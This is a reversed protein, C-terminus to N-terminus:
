SEERGDRASRAVYGDIPSRWLVEVINALQGYHVSKAEGITGGDECLPPPKYTHLPGRGPMNDIVGRYSIFM